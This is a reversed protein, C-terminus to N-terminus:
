VILLQAERTTKPRPPLTAAVLRPRHNDANRSGVPAVNSTRGAVGAGTHAEIATDIRYLAVAQRLMAGPRVHATLQLLYALKSAGGALAEYRHTYLVVV